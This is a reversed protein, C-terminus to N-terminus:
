RFEPNLIRLPHSSVDDYVQMAQGEPLEPMLMLCSRFQERSRKLQKMSPSHLEKTLAIALNGLLRATEASVEPHYRHYLEGFLFLIQHLNGSEGALILGTTESFFEELSVTVRSPDRTLVVDELFCQRLSTFFAESFNEDCSTGLFDTINQRIVFSDMEKYRRASVLVRAVQRPDGAIKSEKLIKSLSGPSLRIQSLIAREDVLFSMIVEVLHSDFFSVQRSIEQVVRRTEDPDGLSKSRTASAVERGAEVSVSAGMLVQYRNSQRFSNLAIHILVDSTMPVNRSQTCTHVHESVPVATVSYSVSLRSPAHFCADGLIQMVEVPSLQITMARSRKFDKISPRKKILGM